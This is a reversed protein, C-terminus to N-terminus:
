LSADYLSLMGDRWAEDIHTSQRVIEAVVRGTQPLLLSETLMRRAASAAVTGGAYSIDVAKVAVRHLWEADVEPTLLSYALRYGTYQQLESEADIWEVVLQAAFPLQSFLFKCCFDAVETNPMEEGWCRAEGITCADAPYLMPALLLSERVGRDQWLAEAIEVSPQVQEAIRRLLPMTLGFNVRYEAGKNRMSQSVIGNMYLRYLRKIDKLQQM